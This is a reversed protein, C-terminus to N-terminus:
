GHHAENSLVSLEQVLNKCFTQDYYWRSLPIQASKEALTEYHPMDLRDFFQQLYAEQEHPLLVGIGLQELVKGTEVHAQAIPVSCNAGGEYLRNPLLWNSNQGEEFMDICWSFHVANYMEKLDDPNKYAGYFNLGEVRSIQADFDDFQDYAPKGRIIVEIKGPNKQVLASLLALSKNCRIAGFWGIKWPPPTPRTCQAVNANDIEPIYIKNEILKIPLEVQSIEKFYERIFAPSSTILLACRKSLWGELGRLLKGVVGMDLLLRHIDLSEYVIIPQASEPYLSRVKVAIALMELNRAIILNPSEAQAKIKHAHLVQQIVAACRQAFGGNHTQGLNMARSASVTAIEEECRRFGAVLVRAGGDDLMTVRKQVAADALDHVLYLVSLQSM